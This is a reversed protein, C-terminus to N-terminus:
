MVLTCRKELRRSYVVRRNLAFRKFELGNIKDQVLQVFLALKSRTFVHTTARQAIAEELGTSAPFVM